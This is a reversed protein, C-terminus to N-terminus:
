KKPSMHSIRIKLSAAFDIGRNIAILDQMGYESIHSMSCSLLKRTLNLKRRCLVDDRKKKRYQLEELYMFVVYSISLQEVNTNPRREIKEEFSNKRYNEISGM